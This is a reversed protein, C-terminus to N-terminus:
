HVHRMYETSGRRDNYKHGLYANSSTRPTYTSVLEGLNVEVEFIGENQLWEM